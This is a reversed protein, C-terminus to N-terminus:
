LIDAFKRESYQFYASGVFFLALASCASIFFLDPYAITQVSLSSRLAEIMGSMPNLALTYRFVPRVIELPYIVPSVFIMLQLFYPVVYRVDRYTVNIAALLMGLGSAALITILSAILAVSIFLWNMSIHWYIIAIFLLGFSVLFDFFATIVASIPLIERPFYVKKVLQQNEILSNSSRSLAASFFGWFILGILVFV